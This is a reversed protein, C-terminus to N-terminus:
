LRVWGLEGLGGLKVGPESKVSRKVPATPPVWARDSDRERSGGLERM